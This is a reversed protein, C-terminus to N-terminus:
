AAMRRGRARERRPPGDAGRAVGARAGAPVRQLAGAGRRLRAADRLAAEDAARLRRVDRPVQPRPVRGVSGRDGSLTREVLRLHRLRRRRGRDDDRQGRHVEHRLPHDPRRRVRAAPLPVAHCLHQGRHAARRGRPRGGRRPLHRARQRRPERDDRRLSGEHRGHRVAGATPTTWTSGTSASRSSARSTTSSRPRAATSRRRSRSGTARSSCRSSSRRGARRPRERVRRRRRRRRPERPAGRVRRRDSEHDPQLRQRVGAPQLVGVGVGHGRLRVRRDPLDADRERRYVPRAAARCARRPHQVRVRAAGRGDLWRLSFPM